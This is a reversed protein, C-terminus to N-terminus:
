TNTIGTYKIASAPRTLMLGEEYMCRLEYATLSERDLFIQEEPKGPVRFTPSCSGTRVVRKAPVGFAEGEKIYPHPIIDVKGNSGHYCINESGSDSKSPKFSSDYTRLAAQDQNLNEFTTPSVWIDIDENLGRGVAQAVGALCKRMTFAGGVPYTNAQWLNYTSASINFLTGTNLIIKDLGSNELDGKAASYSDSWLVSCTTESSIASDLATIGTSTGTVLIAKNATDITTVTFLSDAGSSILTDDSDKHFVLKANEAGSWIAPSWSADTFTITTTTSSANVSSTTKALGTKGYLMELELRYSMSEVMQQVVHKSHQKFSGKGESVMRQATDYPIVERLYNPLPNLQAQATEHVIADNLTAAGRGRTFGHSRTTIVPQVFYEGIRKGEKFKYKKQLKSNDPVLGEVKDSYVEKWLSNLTTSSHSSAM